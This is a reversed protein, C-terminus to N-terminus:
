QVPGQYRDLWDLIDKRMLDTPPVHGAEFVAHRKDRPPRGLLSFMPKQSTEIPFVNDYRGNIMLVPVKVHPVFQSRGGEPLAKGFELGGGVLVAAKIRPEVAARAAM